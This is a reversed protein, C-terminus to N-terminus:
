RRRPSTSVKRLSGVLLLVIASTATTPEPVAIETLANHFGPGNFEEYAVIFQRIDQYDIIQNRTIDGLMYSEAPSLHSVDRHLNSILLQYDDLDVDSDNDFSGEPPANPDFPTLLFLGGATASNNPSGSQFDYSAVYIRGSGPDVTLDLPANVDLPDNDLDLLNDVRSVLAQDGLEIAAIQHNGGFFYTVLVRGQLESDGTYEAIGNPSISSTGAEDLLNHILSEDWGPEPLTGAPYDANEWDGDNGSGPTPNGAFSIYNGQSPNPHGYYKGQQLNVFTEDPRGSLVTSEDFLTGPDDPVPAPGDNGNIAAYLKGNSHWNLDYANRVGEAFVQVKAGSNTPDYGQDTNVNVPVGGNIFGAANVDAVLVSASLPTEPNIADGGSPDLSGQALYLRGDPGFTIGNNQHHEVPLGTIFTQATASATDAVAPLSVRDIQGGFGRQFYPLTNYSTWLMLNSATSAPDFAIGTMIVNDGPTSYLAEAKGIPLGTSPEITWRYITGSTGAAYVHGDPGVTLSNLAEIDEQVSTVSFRLYDQSQAWRSSSLTTILALLLALLSIKSHVM